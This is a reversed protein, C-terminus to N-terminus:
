TFKNRPLFQSEIDYVFKVLNIRCMLSEVEAIDAVSMSPKDLLENQRVVLQTYNWKSDWYFPTKYQELVKSIPVNALYQRKFAAMLLDYGAWKRMSIQVVEDM